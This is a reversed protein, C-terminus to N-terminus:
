IKSEKTMEDKEFEDLLSKSKAIFNEVKKEDDKFRNQFHIKLLNDLEINELGNSRLNRTLPSHVPIVSAIFWADKLAHMVQSSNTTDKSGQPLFYVLKVIAGFLNYTKVQDCIQQTFDKGSELKVSIQIMKRTPVPLFKYACKKEGNELGIEGLCFGKEDRLEGFDIRELSGSYVVPVKENKNLNQYRHLHGLAVYDVPSVTLDSCSFLPDNGFIAKKESGSFVGQDVTLHGTLITPIKEDLKLCIKKIKESTVQSIKKVIEFNSLNKDFNCGRLIQRSPWAVGVVQVPGSKTQILKSEVSSFVHFGEVPLNSYVDLAHAKGFSVPYDHNGVVIAIQIDHKQLQLLAQLLFKQQTPTPNATKYADGAIIFLDVDNKIAANVCFNFAKVFDLFRYNLGTEPDIKGYNEVGFHIDATHIFKILNVM